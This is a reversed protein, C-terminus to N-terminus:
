SVHQVVFCSVFVSLLHQLGCCALVSLRLWGTDCTWFSAQRHVGVAVCPNACVTGPLFLQMMGGQQSRGSRTWPGPSTARGASASSRCARVCRPSTWRSSAAAPLRLPPSRRHTRVFLPPLAIHTAPFEHQNASAPDALNCNVLQLLWLPLNCLDSQVNCLWACSTAHSM